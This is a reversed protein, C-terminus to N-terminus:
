RVGRALVVVERLGCGLLLRSNNQYIYLKYYYYYILLLNKIVPKQLGMVWVRQFGTGAAIGAPKVPIPVPVAPSVQPNGTGNVISLLGLYLFMHMAPYIAISLPVIVSV